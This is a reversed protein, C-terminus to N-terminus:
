DKRELAINAGPAVASVRWLKGTIEVLDGAVLRDYDAVIMGGDTVVTIRGYPSPQEFTRASVSYTLGQYKASYPTHERITWAGDNEFPFKAAPAGSATAGTGNGSGAPKLLVRYSCVQEVTYAHGSLSVTGGPRAAKQRQGGAYKAGERLTASRSTGETHSSIYQVGGGPLRAGGGSLVRLAHPDATGDCVPAADRLEPAPSASSSPATPHKDGSGGDSGCGSLLVVAAVATVGAACRTKPNRM